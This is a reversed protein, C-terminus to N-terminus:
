SHQRLQKELRAIEELSKANKIAQRIREIEENAKATTKAFAEDEPEEESDSRALSGVEFTKSETIKKHLKDGKKGKFLKRAQEREQQSVTNFDLMRLRPCMHIVYLRYHDKRTVPNDLLSLYELFHLGALPKLDLLNEVRNGSLILAELNPLRQGLEEDIFAIKNNALLLHRLREMRPFNELRRIDNNTLDIVDNQDRTVALNEM